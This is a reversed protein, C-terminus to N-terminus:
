MINIREGRFILKIIIVHILTIILFDKFMVLMNIFLNSIILKFIYYNVKIVQNILNSM